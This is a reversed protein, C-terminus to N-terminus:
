VSEERIMPNSEDKTNSNDDDREGVAEGDELSYKYSKGGSAAWTLAVILVILVAAAFTLGTILIFQMWLRGREEEPTLSDLQQQDLLQATPLIKLDNPPLLDPNYYTPFLDNTTMPTTSPALSSSAVVVSSARVAQSLVTTVSSLTVVPPDPPNFINWFSRDEFDM